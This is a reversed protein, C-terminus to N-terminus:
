WPLHPPRVTEIEFSICTPEADCRAMCTAVSEYYTIGLENRDPCSGGDVVQYTATSPPPSLKVFFIWYVSGSARYDTDTSTCTTLQCRGSTSGYTSGYTNTGYEFSVCNSDGDCLADCAALNTYRTFAYNTYDCGFNGHYLLRPPPANVAVQARTPRAALLVLCWCRRM